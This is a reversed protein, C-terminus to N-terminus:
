ETYSKLIMLANELAQIHEIGLTVAFGTSTGNSHDFTTQHLTVGNVHSQATVLMDKDPSFSYEARFHNKM